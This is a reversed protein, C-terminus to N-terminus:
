AGARRSTRRAARAGKNRRRRAAITAPAVTGEYIHKGTAALALLMKTSPSEAKSVDLPTVNESLRVKM